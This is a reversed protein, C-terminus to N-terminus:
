NTWELERESGRAVAVTELSLLTLYSAVASVGMAVRDIDPFVAVIALMTMTILGLRIFFGFLAAAHYLSLSVGAATALIYGGLVFNITVIAVGLGAAIAGPIGSVVGFIVMLIPAVWIARKAINKGIIAEVPRKEPSPGHIAGSTTDPEFGM